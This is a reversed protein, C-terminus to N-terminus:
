RMGSQRKPGWYDTFVQRMAQNRYLSNHEDMLATVFAPTVLPPMWCPVHATIRVMEPRRTFLVRHINMIVDYELLALFPKPAKQFTRGIWGGCCGRKNVRFIIASQPTRAQFSGRHWLRDFRCRVCLSCTGACRCRCEFSGVWKEDYARCRLARKFEGCKGCGRRCVSRWGSWWRWMGDEGCGSGGVEFHFVFAEASAAGEWGATCKVVEREGACRTGFLETLIVM